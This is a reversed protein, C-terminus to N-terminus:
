ASGGESGAPTFRPIVTEDDIRDFHVEVAMGVHVDAPDCGVIDSHFFPGEDLEIVALAYPIRDAFSPDYAHHVVTYTHVVGRGSAPEWRMADVGHDICSAAPWYARGCTGCRQVSFVGDRCADWFPADLDDPVVDRPRLVRRAPGSM